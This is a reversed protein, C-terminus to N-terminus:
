MIVTSVTICYNSEDNKGRLFFASSATALLFFFVCWKSGETIHLSSNFFVAASLDTIFVREVSEPTVM